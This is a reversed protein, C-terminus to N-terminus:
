AAYFNRELLYNEVKEPLLYHITRNGQRLRRIQTSSIDMLTVPFLYISFGSPHLFRSERPFYVMDPSIMQLIFEKIRNRRYGPRDMVVFHCLKFLDRYARWTKIEWFADIGVIFFLEAGAGLTNKFYHVTRITYSKGDWKKEVDSVKLFPHGAIALRIMKLRHVFPLLNRSEKHPPVATPIFLVRNLDFAEQIEMGARLHGFHIPNFAGGFLGIRTSRPGPFSSQPVISALPPRLNNGQVKTRRGEKGTPQVKLKSGQVKLEQGTM